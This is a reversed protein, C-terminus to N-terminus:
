RDIVGKMRAGDISHEMQRWYLIDLHVRAFQKGAAVDSALRQYQNSLEPTLNVVGPWRPLQQAIEPHEKMAQRLGRATHSDLPLELWKEIEGLGFATCIWRNYLADRLFINLFKRAAGWAVGTRRTMELTNGDLQARFVGEDNVVFDNLPIQQLFTRAKAITGAPGMKRATSPGIATHALRCRLVRLYEQSMESM